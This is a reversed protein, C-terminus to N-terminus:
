EGPKEYESDGPKAMGSIQLDFGDPDEVHFSVYNPTDGGKDLRPTLGRKELEAKVAATDWNDIRYSIHDVTGKREAPPPQGPRERHNRAIIMSEGFELQCQGKGDDGSVKMGMLDAYFDRTRRYDAVQYSIHDLSLTRFKTEALPSASGSVPALGAILALSKVLERRSVRGDEFDRVMRHIIEEM